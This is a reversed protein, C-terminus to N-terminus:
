GALELDEYVAATVQRLRRDHKLEGPMGNFVLAVVLNHQPDAFATASERGGHGFAGASAHPGYGYPAGPGYAKNDFMVGLGWDMIHGFTVDKMGTRQPSIIESALAPDLLKEGELEGFGLLMRYLRVMDSATSQLGGGPRVFRSTVEPLYDPDKNKEGSKMMFMPSFRNGLAEADQATLMFSSSEMRLPLFIREHVFKDYPQGSIRRIVEALVQWGSSAHYGAKKGPEWDREIRANALVSNAEDINTTSAATEATRIGATHTLLHKITIQEKGNAGFEPWYKAVADDIELLGDQKLLEIAVAGIPKGASLWLNISDPRMLVSEAAEGAGANVVTEGDHWVCIQAGPHWGLEIGKNIAAATEPMDVSLETTLQSGGDGDSLNKGPGDHIMRQRRRGLGPTGDPGANM